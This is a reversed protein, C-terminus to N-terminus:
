APGKALDKLLMDLLILAMIIVPVYIPALYRYPLADAYDLRPSTALLMAVYILSFSGFLILPTIYQSNQSELYHAQGANRRLKKRWIVLCLLVFSLYLLWDLGLHLALIRSVFINSYYEIYELLSSGYYRRDDYGTITGIFLQNKTIWIGFLTISISGYIVVWKLRHYLTFNRRTLIIIIGTLIVAIGIYRTATALSAFVASLVLSVGRRDEVTLFTWMQVLALLSFLIYCTDSMLYSSIDNMIFSTMVTISGMVALFRYRVHRSLQYGTLLIILGFGIINILRGVDIPDFGLVGFLAALLSFIPGFTYARQLWDKFGNGAALNEAVSIYNWSDQTLEPGYNSTRILLHAAGLFATLLIAIDFLQFKSRRLYVFVPAPNVM